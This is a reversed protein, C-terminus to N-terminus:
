REVLVIGKPLSIDIPKIENPANIVTGTELFAAM